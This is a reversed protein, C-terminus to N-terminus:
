NVKGCVYRYRHPGCGPELCSLFCLCPILGEAALAPPPSLLQSQGAGYIRQSTIFLERCRHHCQDLASDLATGWCRQVM